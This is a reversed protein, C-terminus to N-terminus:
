VIMVDTPPVVICEQGDAMRVKRAKRPHGFMNLGKRHNSAVKKQIRRAKKELYDVTFVVVVAKVLIGM